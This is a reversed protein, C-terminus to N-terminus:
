EYKASWPRGKWNVPNAPRKVLWSPWNATEHMHKEEVKVDNLWPELERYHDWGEDPTGGMQKLMRIEHLLAVNEYTWEFGVGRSKQLVEAIRAEEAKRLEENHAKIRKNEQWTEFLGVVSKFMESYLWGRYVDRVTIDSVKKELFSM